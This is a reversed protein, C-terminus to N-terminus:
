KNCVKLNEYLVKGLNRVNVRFTLFKNYTNSSARLRLIKPDGVYVCLKQATRIWDPHKKLMLPTLKPLM